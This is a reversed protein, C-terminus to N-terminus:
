YGAAIAARKGGSRGGKAFGKRAERFRNIDAGARHALHAQEALQSQTMKRTPLVIGALAPKKNKAM